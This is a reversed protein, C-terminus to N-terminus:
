VVVKSPFTFFLVTNERLILRQTTLEQIKAYKM